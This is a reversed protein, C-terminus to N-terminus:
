PLGTLSTYRMMPFWRVEGPASGWMQGTYWVIRAKETPIAPLSSVIPITFEESEDDDTIFREWDTNAQNRKWFIGNEDRVIQHLLPSEPFGNVVAPGPRGKLKALADRTERIDRKRAREASKNKLSTKSLIQM